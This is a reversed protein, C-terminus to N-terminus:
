NYFISIASIGTGQTPIKKIIGDFGAGPTWQALNAAPDATRM